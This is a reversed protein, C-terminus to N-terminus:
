RRVKYARVKSPDLHPHREIFKERAERCTKSWTTTGKYVGGYVLEIKPYDRKDGYARGYRRRLRRHKMAGEGVAAVVCASSSGALTALRTARGSCM